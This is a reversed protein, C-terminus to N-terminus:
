SEVTETWARSTRKGKTTAMVNERKEEGVLMMKQSFAKVKEVHGQNEQLQKKEHGV